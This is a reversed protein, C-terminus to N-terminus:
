GDAARINGFGGIGGKRSRKGSQRATKKAEMARPSGTGNGGAGWRGPASAPGVRTPTVAHNASMEFISLAACLKEAIDPYQLVLAAQFFRNSHLGSRLQFHGELLAGSKMFHDLVDKDTM